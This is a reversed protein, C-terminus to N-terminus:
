EQKKPKEHLERHKIKLWARVIEKLILFSFALVLLPWLNLTTEGAQKIMSNVTFGSTAVLGALSLITQWRHLAYGVSRGLTIIVPAIPLAM